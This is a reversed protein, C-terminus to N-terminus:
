TTAPVQEMKTIVAIRGQLSKIKGPLRLVEVRLINVFHHTINCLVLTRM